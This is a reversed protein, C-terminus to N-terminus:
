APVSARPQLEDLRTEFADVVQAHLDPYKEELTAIIQRRREWENNLAKVGTLRAFNACLGDAFAVAKVRPSANEPLADMISDRWADRLGEAVSTAANKEEQRYEANVGEVYKNDDWRGLFINAAVGIQSAAKTIADTLSKKPADEDLMLGNRTSMVAKTQGYADFHKSRDTHWFRIRVWHLVEGGDGLPTFDEAVVDWGFGEGVPGFLDTLCRVLYHPNPSTGKYPKGTIPKTFKPDIDAFRDWHRRNEDTM